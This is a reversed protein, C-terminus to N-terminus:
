VDVKRDKFRRSALVHLGGHLDSVVVRDAGHCCVGFPYLCGPLRLVQLPVGRTTLTQLRAGAAEAVHLREGCHSVAVGFPGRFQGPAEGESGFLRRLAHPPELAYFAMRSNMADCVVLLGEDPLVALGMPSNLQGPEDGCGGLSASVRLVDSLQTCATELVLVRHHDRDSVFLLGAHACLGQPCALGAPEAAAAATSNAHAARRRRRPQPHQLLQCTDLGVGGVGGGGGGSGVGGGGGGGGGSGGGGEGLSRSPAAVGIDMKLIRNTDRDVVYLWEGSADLALGRPSSFQAARPLNPRLTRVTARPVEATEAVEKAAVADAGFLLLRCVLGGSPCGSSVLLGGDDLALMYSPNLLSDCAEPMITRLPTLEAWRAVLASASLALSHSCQAFVACAGLGGHSLIHGVLDDSGFVTALPCRVSAAAEVAAVAM